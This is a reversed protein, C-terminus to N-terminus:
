MIVNWPENYSIKWCKQFISAWETNIFLELLTLIFLISEFFCFLEVNAQCYYTSNFTIVETNGCFSLQRCRIPKLAKKHIDVKQFFNRDNWSDSTECNIITRFFIVVDGHRNKVGREHPSLKTFYPPTVSM